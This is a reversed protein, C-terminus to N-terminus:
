QLCTQTTGLISCNRTGPYNSILPKRGRHRLSLKLDKQQLAHSAYTDYLFRQRYFRWRHKQLATCFSFISPQMNHQSCCAIYWSQMLRLVVLLLLPCRCLNGVCSPHMPRCFLISCRLSVPSFVCMLSFFAIIRLRTESTGQVCFGWIRSLQVWWRFVILLGNRRM